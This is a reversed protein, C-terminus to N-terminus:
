PVSRDMLKEERVSGAEVQVASGGLVELESRDLPTRPDLDDVVSDNGVSRHGLVSGSLDHSLRSPPM